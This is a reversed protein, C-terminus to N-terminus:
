RKLRAVVESFSNVNGHKDKWLSMMERARSPPKRAAIGVRLEECWQRFGNDAMVSEREAEIEQLRELTINM